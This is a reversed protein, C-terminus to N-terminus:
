TGTAETPLGEPFVDPEPDTLQFALAELEMVMNVDQVAVDDPVRIRRPAFNLVGRVGAAVVRDVMEQAADAPVAIVALEIETEAVAAELEGPHRIRVGDWVEGLKAPDTDFIAVIDFGRARFDGYEYLASGIRGAGLLAVRWNRELGLIARISAILEGTTYGLGRKGFSGFSSLDKRVQAATTGAEAALQESSLTSSDGVRRELARLYHSLRRVTSESIKRPVVDHRPPPPFVASSTFNKVLMDPGPSSRFHGGRGARASGTV